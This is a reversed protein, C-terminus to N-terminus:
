PSVRPVCITVAAPQVKIRMRKTPIRDGGDLEYPVKRSFRIDFSKGRTVEVFPSQKANGVLTRAM